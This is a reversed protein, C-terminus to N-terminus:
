NKLQKTFIQKKIGIEKLVEDLRILRDNSTPNQM